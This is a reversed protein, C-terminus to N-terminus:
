DTQPVTGTTGSANSASQGRAPPPAPDPRVTDGGAAKLAADIAAAQQDVIPQLGAAYKLALYIAVAALLAWGLFLAARNHM